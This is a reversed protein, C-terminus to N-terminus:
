AEPAPIPGLARQLSVGIALLRRDTGPLSDFELGVPLGASTVSAPLVLSAM